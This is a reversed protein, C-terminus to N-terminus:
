KSKDFKAAHAFLVLLVFLHVTQMVIEIFVQLSLKFHLLFGIGFILSPFSGGINKILWSWIFM